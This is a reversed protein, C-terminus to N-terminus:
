RIDLKLKGTFGKAWLTAQKRETCQIARNREINVRNGNPRVFLVWEKDVYALTAGPLLKATM